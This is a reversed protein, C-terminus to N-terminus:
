KKTNKRKGGNYVSVLGKKLMKDNYSEADGESYLFDIYRESYKGPKLSKVIVEKNLVKDELYSKAALAKKINNKDKLEASDIGALRLKLKKLVNFGLDVVMWITDGDIIEIVLAKYRYQFVM